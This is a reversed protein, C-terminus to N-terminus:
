RQQPLLIPPQEFDMEDGDYDMEEGDFDMKDEDFIKAEEFIGSERLSVYCHDGIIVHDLLNIELQQGLAYVKKTVLIDEPSPSPDGSPHNHVLVISVARNRLATGFIERVSLISRNVTGTALCEERLLGGRTDLMMMHLSEREEHRLMEMYYDAVADPTLYSTNRVAKRSAMRRSLEGVCQLQIAKVRGIGPIQTLEAVTLHHLSLLGEKSPLLRLVKEALGQADDGQIGTRIIVALLQADSLARPGERLCKEYPLNPDSVRQNGFTKM